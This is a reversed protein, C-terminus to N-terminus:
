DLKCCRSDSNNFFQESDDPIASNPLSARGSCNTSAENFSLALAFFTMQRKGEALNVGHTFSSTTIYPTGLTPFVGNVFFTTWDRGAERGGAFMLEMTEWIIQSNNRPHQEYLWQLSLPLEHTRSLGFKYPDFDDDESAQEILGTYNNKLMSNALVTFKHM